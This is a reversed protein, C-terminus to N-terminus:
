SLLESYGLDLECVVHLELLLFVLTHTSEFCEFLVSLPSFISVFHPASLSQLFSWGSVAGGRSGDWIYDSFGSM